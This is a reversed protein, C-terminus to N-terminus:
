CAAPAGAARSSGARRRTAAGRRAARRLAIFDTFTNTKHELRGDEYWRAASSAAAASTRSRSVFGRDLLSLRSPRFTPDISIEYSGYGYLLAPATGDLAVDTRHVISIPVRTATRGRRGSAAGVHVASPDYGGLM